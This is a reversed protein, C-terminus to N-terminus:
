FHQPQKYTHRPQLVSEWHHWATGQAYHLPRSAIGQNTHGCNPSRFLVYRQNQSARFRLKGQAQAFDPYAHTPSEQSHPKRWTSIIRNILPTKQGSASYRFVFAFVSVLQPLGRCTQTNAPTQSRLSLVRYDTIMSVQRVSM